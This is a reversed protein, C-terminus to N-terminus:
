RDCGPEVDALRCLQERHWAPSGYVAADTTLRRLFLHQDHEWTYAIGGFLQFCAHALDIGSDGVLAKAISAAPRRYSDSAGLHEVAADLVAKSLELALSSDALSHKVAQFSGIPRGFAIRDKAYGVTMAHDYDMAGVSEAVTLVSALALQEAVTEGADGPPGVLAAADAVVDDLRLEAYRRTLDLNEAPALTMGDAGVPLLFQAPGLGTDATILLWGERGPHAIMPVRGSLLHRGNSQEARVPGALCPMGRPGAIAWTAAATGSLLAPLVEARQQESGATAIAAAVVNTGVFPDPQLARGRHYAILAADRVGDGSVTGGGLEAPVLFSYWGLNAAARRYGSLADDDASAGHRALELPCMRDIHQASADVLLRQEPTLRLDM